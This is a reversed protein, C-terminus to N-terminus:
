ATYVSQIYEPWTFMHVIIGPGVCSVPVQAQFVQTVTSYSAVGTHNLSQLGDLVYEALVCFVTSSNIIAQMRMNHQHLNMCISQNSIIEQDFNTHGEIM